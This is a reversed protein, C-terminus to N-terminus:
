SHDGARLECSVRDLGSCCIGLENRNKRENCYRLVGCQVEEKDM